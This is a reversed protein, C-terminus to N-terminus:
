LVEVAGTPGNASGRAEHDQPLRVPQSSTLNWYKYLKLSSVATHLSGPFMTDFHNLHTTELSGVSMITPEVGGIQTCQYPCLTGEVEEETYMSIPM